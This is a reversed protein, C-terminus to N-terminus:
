SKSSLWKVLAVSSKREPSTTLLRARRLTHITYSRVVHGVRRAYYGYLHRSKRSAPYTKAMEDRSLFVRQWALRTKDAFSTVGVMDFFPMWQRYGTGALVSEKATDLVRQDPGGPVLQELVDDPVEADLMSRALNLMLGVYRAAGWERASRVARAWDIESRSHHIVEAIDCFPGLGGCLGDLSAHLCLHLLMDGPSLALVEVGAITAPRARDWLDAADIRFLGTPSAITWHMEIDLDRVVVPPIHRNRKCRSEIDEFQVHVGGLDLLVTLARPLEAKPVMLDVDTMPRVAVDSYVAEALYAGKLVIVKIGSNRLCRLVPGLERYLRVNRPACKFYQLRLRKWADAPVYSRAGSEKLRKFLLPALGHTVATDVVENWVASSPLCSVALPQRSVASSPPGFVSSRPHIAASSPLSLVSSPPDTVSLCRLLLDVASYRSTM